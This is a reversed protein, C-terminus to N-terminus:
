FGLAQLMKKASLSLEYKLDLSGACLYSFRKKPTNKNKGAGNRLTPHYPICALRAKPIRWVSSIKSLNFEPDPVYDPILIIYNSFRLSSECLLGNRAEEDQPLAIVVLDAQQMLRLTRRDRDDKCDLCRIDGYKQFFSSFYDMCLDSTFIPSPSWFAIYYSHNM